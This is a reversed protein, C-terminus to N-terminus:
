NGHSFEKSFNIDNESRILITEELVKSSDSENLGDDQKFIFDNLYAIGKGFLM